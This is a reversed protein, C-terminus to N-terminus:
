TRGCRVATAHYVASSHAPPRTRPHWTSSTGIANSIRASMPPFIQDIVLHEFPDWRLEAAHIARTVIAQIHQEDLLVPLRAVHERQQENLKIIPRIQAASRDGQAARVATDQLTGRQTELEATLRRVEKRLPKLAENAQHRWAGPLGTALRSRTLVNSRM